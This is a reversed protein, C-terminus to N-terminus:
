PRAWRSSDPWRQARFDVADVVDDIRGDVVADITRAEGRRLRRVFLRRACKEHRKVLELLTQRPLTIKNSWLGFRVPAQEGRENSKIRDVVAVEFAIQPADDVIGIELIIKAIEILHRANGLGDVEIVDFPMIVAAMAVHIRGADHRDSRQEIERRRVIAAPEALRKGLFTIARGTSVAHGFRTANQQM